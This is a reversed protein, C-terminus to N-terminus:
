LLPYGGFIEIKKEGLISFTLYYSLLNALCFVGKNTIKPQSTSNSVKLFKHVSFCYISRNTMIINKSGM